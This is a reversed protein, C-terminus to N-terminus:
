AAQRLPPRLDPSENRSPAVRHHLALAVLKTRLKNKKSYVTKVSIRM